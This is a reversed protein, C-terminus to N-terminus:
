HAQVRVGGMPTSLNWCTPSSSLCVQSRRTLPRSAGELYTSFARDGFYTKNSRRTAFSLAAITLLLMHLRITESVLLPVHDSAEVNNDKDTLIPLQCPQQEGEKEMDPSSNPSDM